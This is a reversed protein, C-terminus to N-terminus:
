KLCHMYEEAEDGSVLFAQGKSCFISTSTYEIDANKDYGIKKIVEEENHCIDYGDFIFNIKGKGKTLSTFEMGYNMFTSVPGRGIIVAKNNSTQPAEFSGNLKQIDSLIRGMYDIDVEMKFRYYPELLVNKANELGQRLARFTAERFDGGSTHKNHARGTLM